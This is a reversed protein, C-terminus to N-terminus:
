QLGQQLHHFTRLAKGVATLAKVMQSRSDARVAIRLTALADTAESLAQGMTHRLAASRADPPERSSFTSNVSNADNEAYTVTDDTFALLNQGRLNVEVVRQATALSSIIATATGLAAHRYAGYDPVPAACSALLLCAAGCSCCGALWGKVKVM